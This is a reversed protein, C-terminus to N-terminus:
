QSAGIRQEEHAIFDAAIRNYAAPLRDRMDGATLL